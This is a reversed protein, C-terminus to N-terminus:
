NVKGIGGSVCTNKPYTILEDSSRKKNILKACTNPFRNSTTAYNNNSCYVIFLGISRLCGYIFYLMVIDDNAHM